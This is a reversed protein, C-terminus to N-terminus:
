HRDPGWWVGTVVHEYGRLEKWLREQIAGDAIAQYALSRRRDLSIKGILKCGAKSSFGPNKVALYEESERVTIQDEISGAGVRCRLM